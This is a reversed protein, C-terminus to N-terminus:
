NAVAHAHNAHDICIRLTAALDKVFPEVLMGAPYVPLTIIEQGGLALKDWKVEPGRLASYQKMPRFETIVGPYPRAVYCSAAKHNIEWIDALISSQSRAERRNKFVRGLLAGQWVRSRGRLIRLKEEFFTAKLGPNLLLFNRVHFSLKEIQHYLKQGISDPPRNSWNVTDFLSLLAVKEGRLCLQRAMELAVTGGMCYGGLQYPGHPQVKQIESIYLTAMDEITRVYASRGDLGRSQLGYFPQDAGLHRALDRYILVNGGGGHACFFPPRSGNPQIPVVCSWDTPSVGRILRAQKEITPTELLSAFPLVKDFSEEIRTLLKAALLSHGGLEFFDDHTGIRDKNLVAQWIQILRNEIDDGADNPNEFEVNANASSRDSRASTTPLGLPELARGDAFVALTTWSNASDGATENMQVSPSEEYLAAVEEIIRCAGQRDFLVSHYSWILDFTCDDLRVLACRMLPAHDVPIDQNRDTELFSDLWRRAADNPIDRLDHDQWPLHPVFAGTTSSSVAEDV